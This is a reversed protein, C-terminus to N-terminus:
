GIAFYPEGALFPSPAAIEVQVGAKLGIAVECETKVGPIADM